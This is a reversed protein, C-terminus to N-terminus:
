NRKILFFPVPKILIEKIMINAFVCLEVVLELTEEVCNAGFCVGLVGLEVHNAVSHGPGVVFDSYIIVYRLDFSFAFSNELISGLTWTTFLEQRSFFLRLHAESSRLIRSHLNKL